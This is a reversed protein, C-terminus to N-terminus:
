GAAADERIMAAGKEGIMITPANTNGTTVTPMVSADIVRLGAIGRVKCGRISWRWRTRAWRAPASPTISRRARGARRLRCTGRRTTIGPGPTIESRRQAPGAGAAAFIRRAMRSAPSCCACTTPRRCTTPSSRRGRSRIPRVPWSRAAATPGAGLLGRRDHRARARAPRVQEPRLQRAHVAAAPRPQGAGRPQPLVGARHHRRLDARRPRDCGARSRACCAAALAGARQDVGRGQGPALHPDVYHDTLNAGVGPLDHVVRVGISQLHAAPGIGSVQLLHPSNIPAAAVPDGRARRAGRRDNGTRASPSASAASARSCCGPPWRARDRGAPEAPARAERLFTQATSGRLRGRRTMQSYGVGEQTAATSTRPQVPLRGAAGSRRLPPDAAPHHPLGRGPAPRGPRAVGARRGARLERSKFYPLVEDYSWGRCGMQAWGDFDAPNGRVYLMGNISSSGGLVRGRPWHMRRDGTGQEPETRTTGTSWRITSCSAARRGPHPDDSALREPRGRAPRRPRRGREAPCAVVCGASGAGVVVYDADIDSAASAM